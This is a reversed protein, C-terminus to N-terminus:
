HLTIVQEFDDGKYMLWNIEASITMGEWVITEIHDALWVNLGLQQQKNLRRHERLLKEMVVAVVKEVINPCVHPLTAQQSCGQCLWTGTTTIPMPNGTTNISQPANGSM